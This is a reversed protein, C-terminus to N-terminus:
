ENDGPPAGGELVKLTGSGELTKSDIDVECLMPVYDLNLRGVLHLPVASEPSEVRSANTDIRFGLETGGRTDTFKALVFGREIASRLEAETQYRSMSVPHTGSSLQEIVKSM